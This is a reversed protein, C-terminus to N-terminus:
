PTAPKPASVQPQNRDLVKLQEITAQHHPDHQLEALFEARAGAIDGAAKLMVGLAFHYDGAGPKLAIAKRVWEIAEPTRGTHFCTMGLFFNTEPYQPLIAYAKKLSAEAEAYKAVEYYALGLNYHATYLNPTRAIARQFYTVAENWQGRELLVAGMNTTAFANAPAVSVGRSYLAFNNMWYATQRFTAVGLWLAVAGCAAYLVRRQAGGPWRTELAAIGLAALLSLGVLPQYLYRDHLLEGRPFVQIELVPLIAMIMWAAAWMGAPSRRVALWLAAGLCLLLAVPIVVGTLSFTQTYDYDYFASLGAPWVVHALYIGVVHPVTQLWVRTSIQVNTEGVAGLVAIRAAMYVAAVLFFPLSQAVGGLFAKKRTQLTSPVGEQRRAQPRVAPQGLWEHLFVVLPIVIATEKSFMALFYFTVAAARWAMRKAASELSRLYCLLAALSLFTCLLETIASPWAVNEVQAPHLGFLLAAGLAGFRSGSCRLALFYVMLSSGLHLLLNALHWGLPDSGFTQYGALLAMLFMPRYYSKRALMLNTWVHQTFYTPIFRPSTIYVNGAIITQDDFVLQMMPTRAYAAAILVLALSPLLWPSNPFSGGRGTRKM